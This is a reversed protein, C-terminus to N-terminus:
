VSSRSSSPAAVSINVRDSYNILIGVGLLVGIEWRRRGVIPAEAM